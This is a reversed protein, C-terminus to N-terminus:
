LIEVEPEGEYAAFDSDTTLIHTVGEDLFAQLILADAMPMGDGWGLRAAQQTTEMSLTDHVTCLLPLEDLFAEVDERVLVGKLANRQLEYVSVTSVVGDAMGGVIATWVSRARDAGDFLQFFFGTDLGYRPNSM